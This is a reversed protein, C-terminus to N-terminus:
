LCNDIKTILYRSLLHFCEFKRSRGPRPHFQVHFSDGFPNRGVHRSVHEYNEKKSTNVSEYRFMKPATILRSKHVHTLRYLRCRPNPSSAPVGPKQTPLWSKWPLLVDSVKERSIMKRIQSHFVAQFISKWEMSSWSSLTMSVVILVSTLRRNLVIEFFQKTPRTSFLVFQQFM